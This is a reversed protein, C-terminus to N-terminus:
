AINSKSSLSIQYNCCLLITTFIGVYKPNVYDIFYMEFLWGVQILVGYEAFCQLNTSLFQKPNEATQQLLYYDQFLFFM